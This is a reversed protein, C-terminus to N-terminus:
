LSQLDWSPELFGYLQAAQCDSGLWEMVTFYTTAHQDNINLDLELIQTTMYVFDSVYSAYTQTPIVNRSSVTRKNNDKLAPKRKNGLVFKFGTRERHAAERGGRREKIQRGRQRNIRDLRKRCPRQTKRCSSTVKM